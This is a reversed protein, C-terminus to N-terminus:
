NTKWVFCGGYFSYKPSFTSLNCLDERHQFLHTLAWHANRYDPHGTCSLILQQSRLLGHERGATQCFDECKELYDKIILSYCLRKSKCFLQIFYKGGSSVRPSLETTKRFCCYTSCGLFDILQTSLKEEKKKYQVM